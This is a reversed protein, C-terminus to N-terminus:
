VYVKYIFIAGVICAISIVVSVITLVISMTGLANLADMSVRDM